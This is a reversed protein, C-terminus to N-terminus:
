VKKTKEGRDENVYELLDVKDKLGPIRDEIQDLRSSLSEVSNKIQRVSIKREV